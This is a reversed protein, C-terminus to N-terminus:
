DSGRRDTRIWGGGATDGRFIKAYFAVKRLAYLPIRYLKGLPLLKAGYALWAASIGITVLVLNAISVTLALANGGVLFLLATFAFVAAQLLVLLALPPVMIDLIMSLLRLNRLSGRKMITTMATRIMKLHGNEWRRNQTISGVQSHPFESLVMASACFNPAHGSRALDLGLKMDEVLNDTSLNAAQLVAWPFAMGSGTLQCPLGLKSLGLPRMQNKVIFAFERVAMDSRVGAPSTMLYCAQVPGGTAVVMAALRELAGQKLTCDADVIVVMEPPDKALYLVGAHLAFGKGRHNDDNREVVEAGAARAFLATRDTCNDAVVVLRDGARMEFKISLLTKSIGSEENHAPVLVAIPPRNGSSKAAPKDRLMIAAACEVAFITAPVTLATSLTLATVSLLTDMM